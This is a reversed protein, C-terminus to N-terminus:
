NRKSKTLDGNTEMNCCCLEDKRAGSASLFQLYAVGSAEQCALGFVIVRVFEHTAMADQLVHAKRRTLVSPGGVPVALFKTEHYHPM